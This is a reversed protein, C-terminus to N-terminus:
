RIDALTNIGITRHATFGEGYRAGVSHGLEVGRAELMKMFGESSIFTEPEKSSPDFFQSKFARIAQMKKEWYDSVDVVFDPVLLQSQIYNYFFKPRWAEQKVGDLESEIKPLGSLLCASYALAAGKPHDPHRDNVANALITEPKYKRIVKLLSKQHTEDNEFFGDKFNLNERVSLGLIKSSEESEKDRLEATGRTGLEGRTFDIIGVKKGLAVHKAITGGCGLEADDPHAALVLIDLKMQFFDISCQKRQLWSNKPM